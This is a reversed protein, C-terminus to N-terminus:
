PVSKEILDPFHRKFQLRLQEARDLILFELSDAAISRDPGVHAEDGGRVTVEFRHNVLVPEACVQIVPEVNEGARGGSRSRRSSM